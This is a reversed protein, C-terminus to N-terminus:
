FKLIPEGSGDTCDCGCVIGGQGVWGDAGCYPCTETEPDPDPDQPVPGQAECETCLGGPTETILGNGDCCPCYNTAM